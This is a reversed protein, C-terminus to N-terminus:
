EEPGGVEAPQEPLSELTQEVAKEKQTSSESGKGKMKNAFLRTLVPGPVVRIVGTKSVEESSFALFDGITKFVEEIEEGSRASKSRARALLKENFEDLVLKNSKFMEFALQAKQAVGGTTASFVDSLASTLENSGASGAFNKANLRKALVASKRMKLIDAKSFLTGLATEAEQLKRLVKNPNPFGVVPDPTLADVLFANRLGHAAESDNGFIRVVDAVINAKQKTNTDRIILDSMESSAVLSSANKLIDIEDTFETYAKVAKGENATGALLRAFNADRDKAALGQLRDFMSRVAGSYEKSGAHSLNFYAERINDIVQVPVSAGNGKSRLFDYDEILRNLTSTGEQADGFAYAPAGKKTARQPNIGTFVGDVFIGGEREITERIGQMLGRADSLGRQSEMASASSMVEAIANSRQLERQKLLGLVSEKVEQGVMRSTAGKKLATLGQELDVLSKARAYETANSAAQILRGGTYTLAKVGMGIGASM